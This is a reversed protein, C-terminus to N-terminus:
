TPYVFGERLIIEGIESLKKLQKDVGNLEINKEKAKEIIVNVPIGKKYEVFLEFILEKIDRFKERQSKAVGSMLIDIDPKGTEPDKCVVELSNKMLEIALEADEVTVKDSLRMRASAEALRCIGELQRATMFIPSQDDLPTRANVYYNNIHDRVEKPMVPYVHRKAYAVYKRVLEASIEPTKGKLMENIEEEEHRYPFHKKCELLEGASRVQLIHDGIKRDMKKDPLDRMLFILDFRSIFYPEMNVQSPLEDHTNFRGEVPNAAALVCTRCMMTASKGAKNITITQQELAELLDWRHENKMKEIEDIAAIGKDAMVLPGAQVEWHEGGFDSKVVSATLGVGSSTKANAYVGRPALKVIYKLIQSKAIAPDGVLLVHIDGRLHSGDEMNIEIGSFLQLAIAKKIDDYGYIIPAISKVFQSLVDGKKQIKKIAEEDEPTIVLESYDNQDYELSNAEIYRDLFVTKTNNDIHQVNRVIGNIILHMGPWSQGAIDNTLCVDISRPQEGGRIGEFSEQVRIKQFDVITSQEFLLRFVGKKEENCICYAPELFKGFGEEPMYVIEGCRACEFVALTIMDTVPTANRVSVELGVLINAHEARLNRVLMKKPLHVIRIHANAKKKIPLDVLELSTEADKLVRIPNNLLEEGLRFDFKIIDNYDVMLSKEKSITLALKQIDTKYYRTFFEKWKAKSSIISAAHETKDYSPRGRLVVNNKGNIKLKDLVVQDHDKQVAGSM